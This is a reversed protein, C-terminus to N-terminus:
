ESIVLRKSGVTVDCKEDKSRKIYKFFLEKDKEKDKVKVVKETIVIKKM